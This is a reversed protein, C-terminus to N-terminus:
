NTKKFSEVTDRLARTAVAVTLGIFLMGILGIAVSM